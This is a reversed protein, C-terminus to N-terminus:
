GTGKPFLTGNADDEGINIVELFNIVGETM